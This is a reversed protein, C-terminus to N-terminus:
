IIVVEKSPKTTNLGVLLKYLDLASQVRVLTNSNVDPTDSPIQLEVEQYVRSRGEIIAILFDMGGGGISYNHVEIQKTVVNIINNIYKVLYNQYTIYTAPIGTSFIAVEMIALLRRDLCDSLYQPLKPLERETVYALNTSCMIELAHQFPAFMMAKERSAGTITEGPHFNYLGYAILLHDVNDYIKATISPHAAIFSQARLAQTEREVTIGYDIGQTNIPM